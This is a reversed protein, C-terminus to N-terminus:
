LESFCKPWRKPPAVGALGCADTFLKKRDNSFLLDLHFCYMPEADNKKRVDVRWVTKWLYEYLRMEFVFGRFQICMERGPLYKLVKM